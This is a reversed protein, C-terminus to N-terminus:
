VYLTTFHTMIGLATSGELTRRDVEMVWGFLAAYYFLTFDSCIRLIGRLIKQVGSSAPFVAM